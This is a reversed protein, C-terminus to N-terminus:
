KVGKHYHLTGNFEKYADVCSVTGVGLAWGILLFMTYYWIRLSKSRTM